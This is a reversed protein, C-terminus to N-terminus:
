SDTGRLEHSYSRQLAAVFDRRDGEVALIPGLRIRYVVPFDPKRLLSWGKGLFRSNSEIFVTQVPVGALKAILFFGGRFPGVDGRSRTGEPFILLQRGARLQRIGERVLRIPTDNRIYGALRASAGVLLNNLLEAKATCVVRPLRSIILMVDLMTPHNSAIILPAEKRLADLAGLDCEVIGSRRMLWVFYRFGAMILLQGLPQGIRRPLLPFLIAAALSWVLSSIAFMALLGYYVLHQYRHTLVRRLRRSGNAGATGIAVLGPTLASNFFDDGTRPPRTM